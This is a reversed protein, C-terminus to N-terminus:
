ECIWERGGALAAQSAEGALAVTLGNEFGQLSGVEEEDWEIVPALPVAVVVEECIHKAQVQFVLRRLEDSGQVEPGAIPVFRVAVAWLCNLTGDGALM